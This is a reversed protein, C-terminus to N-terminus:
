CRDHFAEALHNALGYCLNRAPGIDKAYGRLIFKRVSRTHSASFCWDGSRFPCYPGADTLSSFPKPHRDGFEPKRTASGTLLDLEPLSALM